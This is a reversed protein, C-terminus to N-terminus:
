PNKRSTDSSDDIPISLHIVTGQGPASTFHIQGGLALAREHMGLLGFSKRQTTAALDFGRGDDRVEVWLHGGNRGLTVDVQSAHAYRTINTLSEQVIRFVLVDRTEDLSISDELTHLRCPVLNHETFETCLWEIAPTLGMDLAAPRLNATVNRVGQIARDVLGKMSSLKDVLTQNLAGYHMGLLSIDMRLASLVQGLEDHVERAIHKREEEREAENQATMERLRQRSQEVAIEAQRRSSVDRVVAMVLRGRNTELPSLNIDGPFESGDKRMCQANVGAMLGHPRRIYRNRYGRDKNRLRQPILVEVPQGNLEERQYGFLQEAQTNIQAIKGKVDVLIFADPAFEMVDRFMGELHRRQGYQVLHAKIRALL